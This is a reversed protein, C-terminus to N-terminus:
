SYITSAEIAAKTSAAAHGVPTESKSKVMTALLHM